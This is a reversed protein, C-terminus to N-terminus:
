ISAYAHKRLSFSFTYELMRLICPNPNMGRMRLAFQTNSWACFAHIRMWGVCACLRMRINKKLSEITDLSQTLPCCLGQNSQASVCASKPRWQGYIGSSANVCPAALISMNGCHGLFWPKKQHIATVRILNSPHVPQDLGEYTPAYTVLYILRTYQLLM